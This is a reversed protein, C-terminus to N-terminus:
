IYDIVAISDFKRSLEQNALCTIVVLGTCSESYNAQMAKPKCFRWCSLFMADGYSFFRYSYDIAQQYANM